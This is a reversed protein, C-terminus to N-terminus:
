PRSEEQAHRFYEDINVTAQVYDGSQRLEVNRIRALGPEREAKDVASFIAEFSGTMQMEIQRRDLKMGAIQQPTGERDGIRISQDVVEPGDIPRTLKTVLASEAVDARASHGRATLSERLSKLETQLREHEDRQVLYNDAAKAILKSDARLAAANTYSPMAIFGIALAATATPIFAWLWYNRSTM